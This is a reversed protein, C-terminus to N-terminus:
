KKEKFEIPAEDGFFVLAMGDSNMRIMKSKRTRLQASDNRVLPSLDYSDRGPTVTWGPLFLTRWVSRLLYEDLKSNSFFGRGLHFDFITIPHDLTEFDVVIPHEDINLVNENHMDTVGLSHFIALLAGSRRFFLESLKGNSSGTAGLMWGYTGCDLVNLAKLKIKFKTENISAILRYYFKEAILSRPKYFLSSGDALQIEVVTKGKDHPDSKGPILRKINHIKTNLGLDNLIMIQDESLRQLFLENSDIWYGIKTGVLRALVSYELFFEELGSELMSQVFKDYLLSGGNNSEIGTIGLIGLPYAARRYNNFEYLLTRSSIDTLQSLLDRELSCLLKKPILVGNAKLQKQLTLSATIVFPVFLDQFPQPANKNLFSRNNKLRGKPDIRSYLTAAECAEELMIIWTPRTFGPTTISPDLAAEIQSLSVGSLRLRQNLRREDGNSVAQIWKDLRKKDAVNRSSIEQATIKSTREHLWMSRRVIEDFIEKKM